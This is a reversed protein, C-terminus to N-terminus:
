SGYWAPGAKLGALPQLQHRAWSTGVRRLPPSPKKTLLPSSRRMSDPPGRLDVRGSVAGIAVDADLPCRIELWGSGGRGASISIKGEDDTRIKDARLPAGSEIRLDDRDEATISVRGSRTRIHLHPDGDIPLLIPEDSM